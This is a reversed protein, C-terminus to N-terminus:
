IYHNTGAIVFFDCIPTMETYFAYINVKLHMKNNFLCNQVDLQLNFICFLM